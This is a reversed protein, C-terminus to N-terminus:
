QSTNKISTDRKNLIAFTNTTILRKIVNLGLKQGVSKANKFMKTVKATVDITEKTYQLDRVAKDGKTDIIKDFFKTKSGLTFEATLEHIDLSTRTALLWVDDSPAAFVM